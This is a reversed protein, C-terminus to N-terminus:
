VAGFVYGADVFHGRNYKQKGLKCEDIQVEIGPEGITNEGNLLVM